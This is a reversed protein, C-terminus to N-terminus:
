ERERGEAKDRATEADSWPGTVDTFWHKKLVEQGIKTKPCRHEIAQVFRDAAKEHKSKLWTGASHLVDATEDANDPLLSAAKWALGAAVHRYHYRREPNLKTSGLRKKEESTVALAFSVPKPTIDEGEYSADEIPHTKGTLRTMALSGLNYSGENAAGDPGTETGMLEMGEYRAIWAAHFLARAREQKPTKENKGAALSSTYDDLRKQKRADFFTRATAYDDERVLRRAVMDRFRDNRDRADNEAQSLGEREAESLERSATPFHKGVYDLLEKTTLCREALYAVDDSLGSALFMDLAQTFESRALQVTGLDGLASMSPLMEEGVTLSNELTQDKPLSHVAEALFTASEKLKGERLALKAKLWPAAFGEGTSLKLWRAADAYQGASYAVWALHEADATTKVGSKEVATLWQKQREPKLISGTDTYEEQVGVALVHATVLRRLLPDTAAKALAEPVSQTGYAKASTADITPADERVYSAVFRDPVFLKLSVVASVDGLALQALYLQAAQAPRGLELECHAEWGYSEAALGLSDAFGETALPRTKQFLKAADEFKQERLAAKGLMFAAWVTRHKREAAPRALLREWAARADALKGTKFAYAGQHYDAFEGPVEAPLPETTTEEVKDLFARAAQHQAIAEEANAVKVAGSKVAAAFEEVDVKATFEARLGSGTEEADAPQPVTAPVRKEAVAFEQAIRKCELEWFFEPTGMVQQAGDHLVSTPM